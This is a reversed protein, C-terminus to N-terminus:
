LKCLFSHVHTHNYFGSFIVINTLLLTNNLILLLNLLGISFVWCLSQYTIVLSIPLSDPFPLKKLEQQSCWQFTPVDSAVTEISCSQVPWMGYFITPSKQPPTASINHASLFGYVSYLRQNFSKHPYLFSWSTIFDKDLNWLLQTVLCLFWRVLTKFLIIKGRREPTPKKGLICKSVACIVHGIIVQFFHLIFSSPTEVPWASPGM